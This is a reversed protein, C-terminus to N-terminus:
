YANNQTCLVATCPRQSNREVGSRAFIDFGDHTILITQLTELTFMLYVIVKLFKPDFPFAQYYLYLQLCLIGYFFWILFYAVLVPGANAGIDPPIPVMPGDM